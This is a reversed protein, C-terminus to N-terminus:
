TLERGRRPQPPALVDRLTQEVGELRDRLAALTANVAALQAACNPGDSDRELTKVRAFLGGMIFATAAAQVLVAFALAAFAIWANADM